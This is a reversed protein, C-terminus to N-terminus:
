SPQSRDPLALVFTTTDTDAVSLRGGLSAALQAAITLGLGHGTSDAGQTGRNFVENSVTTTGEDSVTLHVFADLRHAGVTVRGQGHSCANEILVDLVQLVPGPAVHVVLPEPTDQVLPRDHEELQPAWRGLARGVLDRLDLEVAEALRRGRSLELLDTIAESLRDLEGINATLEDAVAPPTEPWMSLDELTLRLATIPTRLQHSANAAFERERRLLEDLQTSALRLASGIAEAEPVAYERLELDFDAAALQEAAAALEDFPRSLRRALLYGVIASFVILGLGVSVLPILAESVRDRIVQDSRTLRLSGGNGLEREEVLVTGAEGPEGVRVQEGTPSVYDISGRELQFRTLYEEDIVNGAEEREVLLAALMTANRSVKVEEDREVQDALLYARPVAYMAIMAVTLGVLAAVLRERM